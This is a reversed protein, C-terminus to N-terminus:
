GIDYRWVWYGEKSKIIELAINNGSFFDSLHDYMDDIAWKESTGHGLVAVIKGTGSIKISNHYGIEGVLVLDCDLASIEDALSNASGAIIAIKEILKNGPNSIGKHLWGIAEVQLQQKLRKLYRKFIEPDRLKGYRGLGKGGFNNEIKYIDHAVEEYPHAEVAAKVMAELNGESVICEMRIEDVINLNGKEGTYPEAGEGPLFTGKGATNFTCFSYNKFEGGGRSCIAKRVKDQSERPVFIVFKYWQVDEQKIYQLDDLELKESLVDILGGPMIDYNTHAAYVAIGKEILRLIKESTGRSSDTINEIPEFILPHHSIILNSGTNVAEEIVDDDIDLTILIKKIEAESRGIQLGVKDWAYALNKHFIKDLHPALDKLIM